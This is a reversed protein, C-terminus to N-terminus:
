QLSYVSGGVCVNYMYMYINIYIYMCIYIYVYIHIHIYVYINIHIRRHCTILGGCIFSPTYVVIIKQALLLTWYNGVSVIQLFCIRYGPTLVTSYYVWATVM